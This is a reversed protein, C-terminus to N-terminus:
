YPTHFSQEQLTTALDSPTSRRTQSNWLFIVPMTFNSFVLSILLIITQEIAQMGSVDFVASTSFVILNDRLSQEHQCILPQTNTKNTPSMRSSSHFNTTAWDYIRYVNEYDVYIDIM